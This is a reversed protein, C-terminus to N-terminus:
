IRLTASRIAIRVRKFITYQLAGERTLLETLLEDSTFRSLETNM